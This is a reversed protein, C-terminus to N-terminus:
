LQKLLVNYDKLHEDAEFLAELEKKRDATLRKYGRAAKFVKESREKKDEILKWVANRMANQYRYQYWPRNIWRDKGNSVEVGNRLLTSRETTGYYDHSTQNVFLYEDEGLRIFKTEMSM